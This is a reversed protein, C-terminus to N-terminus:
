HLNKPYNDTKKHCLLCLTIGNSIDFRLHQHLAFDKQHHAYLNGGRKGCEQCTYDDREFVSRRWNKYELSTRIKASEKTVGGKWLHCNEGRGNYNPKGYNPPHKGKKALGIKERSEQSHKKGKMWTIRGREAIGYCVKSCYKRGARVGDKGCILCLRVPKWRRGSLKARIKQKTVPSHKKGLM